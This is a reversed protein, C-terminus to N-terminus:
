LIIVLMFQHVGENAPSSEDVYLKRMKENLISIRENDCIKSNLERSPNKIFALPNQLVEPWGEEFMPMMGGELSTGGLLCDIDNSWAGSLLLVPDKLLFSNATEYPEIVPTFPFLIHELFIEEKTLLNKEIAVIKKADAAELVELIKREGGTGDWGLSKALRETLDKKDAPSCTNIFPSMPISKQFLGKAQQSLM